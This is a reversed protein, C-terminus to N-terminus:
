ADREDDEEECCLRWCEDCDESMLVGHECRVPRELPVDDRPESNGMNRGRM